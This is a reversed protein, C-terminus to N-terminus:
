NDSRIINHAKLYTAYNQRFNFILHLDWSCMMQEDSSKIMKMYEAYSRLEKYGTELILWQLLWKKVKIM